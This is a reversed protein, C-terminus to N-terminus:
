SQTSNAFARQRAGFRGRGIRGTITPILIPYSAPMECVGPIGTGQFWLTADGPVTRVLACSVVGQDGGTIINTSQTYWQSAVARADTVYCPGNPATGMIAFTATTSKCLNAM